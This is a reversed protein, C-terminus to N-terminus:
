KCATNMTLLKKSSKIFKFSSSSSSAEIADCMCALRACEHCSLDHEHDCSKSYETNNPDSLSFTTCHDKCRQESSIHTKYGTKLYRKGAKLDQTIANAWSVDVGNDQLLAVNSKSKDFAEVGATAIYDLGQLTLQKSASCADLIQFLTQESYPKLEVSDFFSQYQKIIRSPIVTRIAAPM